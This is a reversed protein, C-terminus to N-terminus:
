WEFTIEHPFTRVIVGMFSIENPCKKAWNLQCMLNVM